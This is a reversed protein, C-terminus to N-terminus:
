ISTLFVRLCICLCLCVSQMHVCVCVCVTLVSLCPTRGVSNMIMSHTKGDRGKGGRPASLVFNVHKCTGTDKETCMGNADNAATCTFCTIKDGSGVSSDWGHIESVPVKFTKGNGVGDCGHNSIFAQAVKSAIAKSEFLTKTNQSMPNGDVIPPGEGWIHQAVHGGADYNNQSM